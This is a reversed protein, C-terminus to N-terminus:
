GLIDVWVIGEDRDLLAALEEVPHEEVGAGTVM